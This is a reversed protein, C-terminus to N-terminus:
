IFFESFNEHVFESFTGEFEPKHVHLIFYCEELGRNYWSTLIKKWEAIRLKDLAHDGWCVFRILTKPIPLQMHVVDRRAPTDTIVWGRNIEHLKRSFEAIAKENAFWSLNRVELFINKDRSIWSLYDLLLAEKDKDFRESLQLFASGLSNEFKHISDLFKNTEIKKGNDLKMATHSISKPFKPCFLFGEPVKDKWKKVQELSPIAYHSSNLEIVNFKKSYLELMDGSKTGKAYLSKNTWQPLGLFLKRVESKTGCLFPQPTDKLIFDREKLVTYPIMGFEM